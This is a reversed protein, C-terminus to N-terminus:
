STVTRPSRWRNAPRNRRFRPLWEASVHSGRPDVLVVGVVDDPHQSVYLSVNWAGSSHAALVLPGSLNGGGILADLDDVQDQLTRASEPAPPSLNLGARDYACVRTREAAAYFIDNWTRSDGMLGSEALVTPQGIPATGVCFLHLTRGGVDIDAALQVPAAAVSPAPTPSVAPSPSASAVASSTPSAGGGCAVISAITFALFAFTSRFM